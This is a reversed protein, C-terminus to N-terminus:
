EKGGKRLWRTLPITTTPVDSVGGARLVDCCHTVCSNHHPVYTGMDEDLVSRQYRLAAPADPLEFSYKRIHPKPHTVVRITTDNADNLVFQDTHLVDDGYEVVITAHGQRTLHHQSCSADYQPYEGPVAPLCGEKAYEVRRLIM